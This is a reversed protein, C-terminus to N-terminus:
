PTLKDSLPLTFQFIAGGEPRNEARIEGGYTEVITRSISLGLGTGDTKTTYFTDFVKNLNGLPIGPGSDSVSVEVESESPLATEISLTRSGSVGNAMADMGNLALNLLVQQLQIKDARVLPAGQVLNTNLAVGRKIAEPGIFQVAASIADNLDVKRM